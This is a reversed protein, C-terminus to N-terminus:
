GHYQKSNSNQILVSKPGSLVELGYSEFVHRSGDDEVDDSEKELVEEEGVIIGSETWEETAKLEKVAELM